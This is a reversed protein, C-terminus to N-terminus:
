PEGVSLDIQQIGKIKSLVKLYELLLKRKRVFKRIVRKCLPPIVVNLYKFSKLSPSQLQEKKTSKRFYPCNALPFGKVLIPIAKQQHFLNHNPSFFTQNNFDPGSAALRPRFSCTKLVSTKLIPLTVFFVLLTLSTSSHQSAHASSKRLILQSRKEPLCCISQQPSSFM